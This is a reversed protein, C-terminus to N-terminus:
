KGSRRSIKIGEPTLVKEALAMGADVFVALLAV